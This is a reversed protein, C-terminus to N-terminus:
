PSPVLPNLMINSSQTSILFLPLFAQDAARGEWLGRIVGRSRHLPYGLGGPLSSICISNCVLHSRVQVEHDDFYM